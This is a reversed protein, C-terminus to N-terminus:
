LFDFRIGISGGVRWSRATHVTGPGELEFRPRLLTAGGEARGWFWFRSAVAWDVGVSGAAYALARADRGDEVFGSAAGHVAGAGFVGCLPVTVPGRFFQGCGRAALDWSQYTVTGGAVSDGQPPLYTARADLRLRGRAWGGSLEFAPAARPLVSMSVGVGARVFARGPDPLVEPRPTPSSSPIPEPREPEPEPQPPPVPEPEPEPVPEPEPESREGGYPDVHIALLLAVAQHLEECTEAELSRETEGAETELTVVAKTGTPTSTSEVSAQVEVWRDTNTAGQLEEDLRAFVVETDNCAGAWRLNVPAPEAWLGLLLLADLM